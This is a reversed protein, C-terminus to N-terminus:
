FPDFETQGGPKYITCWSDRALVSCWCTARSGRSLKHCEDPAATCLRGSFNTVEAMFANAQQLLSAVILECTSAARTTQPSGAVSESTSQGVNRSEDEKVSAHLMLERERLGLQYKAEQNMRRTLRTRLGGFWIRLRAQCDDSRMVCSYDVYRLRLLQASFICYFTLNFPRFGDAFSWADTIPLVFRFIRLGSVRQFRRRLTTSNEVM